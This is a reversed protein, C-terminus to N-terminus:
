DSLDVPDDEGGAFPRNRKRLGLITMDVGGPTSLNPAEPDQWTLNSLREVICDELASDGLDSSAKKVQSLRGVGATFTVQYEIVIKEFKGPQNAYCGSAAAYVRQPVDNGFKEQMGAQGLDSVTNTHRLNIAKRAPAQKQPRAEELPPKKEAPTKPDDAGLLEVALLAFVALVAVAGIGVLIRSM